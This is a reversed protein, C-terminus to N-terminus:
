NWPTVCVLTGYDDMVAHAQPYAALLPGGGEQGHAVSISITLLWKPRDRCRQWSAEIQAQGTARHEFYYNEM